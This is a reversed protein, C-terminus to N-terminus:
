FIGAPYQYGDDNTINTGNSRRREAIGDNGIHSFSHQTQGVPSSVNPENFFPPQYVGHSKEANKNGAAVRGCFYSM